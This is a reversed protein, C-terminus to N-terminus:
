HTEQTLPPISVHIHKGVLEHYWYVLDPTIRSSLFDNSSMITLDDMDPKRWIDRDPGLLFVDGRDPCDMWDVLAKVHKRTPKDLRMIQQHRLLAEDLPMILLRM